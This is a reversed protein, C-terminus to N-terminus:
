NIFVYWSYSFSGYFLKWLLKAYSVYYPISYTCTSYTLITLFIAEVQIIFYFTLWFYLISCNLHFTVKILVTDKNLIFVLHHFYFTIQKYTALTCSTHYSNTIFDVDWPHPQSRLCSPFIGDITLMVSFWLAVMIIMDFIIHINWLMCIGNLRLYQITELKIIPIQDQFTTMDDMM